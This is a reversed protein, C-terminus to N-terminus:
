TYKDFSSRSVSLMGYKGTLHDKLWGMSIPNCCTDGMGHWLVIPLMETQQPSHAPEFVDHSFAEPFRVAESRMVNVGLIVVLVCYVKKFACMAFNNRKEDVMSLIDTRTAM